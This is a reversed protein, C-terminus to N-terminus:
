SRRITEKGREHILLWRLGLEYDSWEHLQWCVEQSFETVGHSLTHNYEAIPSTPSRIGWVLIMTNPIARIPMRNRTPAPSTLVQNM